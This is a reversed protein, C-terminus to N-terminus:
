RLSPPGGARAPTGGRAGGRGDATLQRPSRALDCPRRRSSGSRRGSRTASRRAALARTGAGRRRWAPRARPRPSRAPRTLARDRRGTAARHGTGRCSAPRAPRPRPVASGSSCAARRVHTPSTNLVLSVLHGLLADRFHAPIMCGFLSGSRPTRPLGYVPLHKNHLCEKSRIRMKVILKSNRIETTWKLIHVLHISDHHFPPILNNCVLINNIM